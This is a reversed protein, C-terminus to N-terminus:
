YYRDLAHVLGRHMQRDLFDSWHVTCNSRICAPNAFDGGGQMSKAPIQNRKIFALNKMLLVLYDGPADRGNKSLSRSACAGLLRTRMDDGAAM